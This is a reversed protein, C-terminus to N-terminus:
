SPQAQLGAHVADANTVTLTGSTAINGGIVVRREAARGTSSSIVAVDNSGNITVVVSSSTGDASKVTFTETLTQGAGLAQISASNNAATYTWAGNTGLTFTGYTGATGPQAQFTAQGADV